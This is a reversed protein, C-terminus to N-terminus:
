IMPSHGMASTGVAFLAAASIAGVSMLSREGRVPMDAAYAATIGLSIVM